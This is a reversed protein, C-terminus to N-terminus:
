QRGQGQQQGGQQGQGQGQGQQGQQGAQQGQGQQGQQGQQGAQQGQGPQKGQQGRQGQGQALREMDQRLKEAQALAQEAQQQGKDGGKGMAQQAGKVDDKLQNLGQTI